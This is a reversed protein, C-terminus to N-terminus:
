SRPMPVRGFHKSLLLFDAFEVVGDGNFDGDAWVMDTRNFNSSLKLFDDFDVNVDRDADGPWTVPFELEDYDGGGRGDSDGDLPNGGADTIGESVLVIKYLGENLGEVGSLDLTAGLTAPNWVFEADSEFIEGTSSNILRYDDTGLSDSVDESFVFDVIGARNPQAGDRTSGTVTPPVADFIELTASTSMTLADNDRDADADTATVTIRYTGIGYGAVSTTGSATRQSPNIDIATQELVEFGEETVLEVRVSGNALGAGEDTVTWTFENPLTNPQSTGDAPAISIAPASTDDDVIVFDASSTVRQNDGAWDNDADEASVTVRYEGLGIDNLDFSSIANGDGSLIVAGDKIVEVFVGGVGSADSVNWTVQNNAGDLASGGDIEILPDTTDDDSIVFERVTTASLQDDAWDNDADLAFVSVRYNGVGLSNLDVSGSPEANSGDNLLVGNRTVDVRVEALGSADAVAWSVVNNENDFEGGGSITIEPAATDDDSIVFQANEISALSDGTWDSDSDEAVVTVVYSGPGFANLDFSDTPGVPGDIIQVDNRYVQATVREIGSLDTANWAVRNDSGDTSEASSTITLNPAATDDDVISFEATAEASLDDGVWDNDADTATVVIRYDGVGFSNLDLSDVAATPGSFIPEGNRLITATLASLGSSDTVTWGIRNDAGDSEGPVTFSISPPVTDDDVISFTSSATQALEDGVWDNDRDITTVTIEYDAPGLSNLNFLGSSDVGSNFIPVGNRRIVVNVDAFGSEDTVQWTVFNDSRDRDAPTSITIEPAAVDDDVIAFESSMTRQMRDGLWDNDADTASISLRFNGTGFSNLDFEGTANVDSDFILQEDQFIQAAVSTLGSEDSVEWSIINNAGDDQNPASVVIAPGETDDDVITFETVASASTLSDENWDDDGDIAEVLIQYTGPGFSNMDLGSSADVESDYITTDGNFVQVSVVSLGSADTVDWSVRNNQGDSENPLGIAIIPPSTDDDLISFQMTQTSTLEDGPSDNDADTATVTIEYEGPGEANLDWSDVPPVNGDFLTEGDKTLVVSVIEFGSADAVSWSVKNDDGDSERAATIRIEPPNPDDDAIDFLVSHVHTLQDGTWDDDADTATITIRYTGEGFSDLDFTGDLPASSNPRIIMENRWIQATASSIGSADSINWSVVNTNGDNLGPTAVVIDPRASDDDRTSVTLVYQGTEAASAASVEIYYTGTEPVSFNVIAPDVGNSAISDGPAFQVDNTELLLPDASNDARDFLRLSLNANSETGGSEPDMLFDGNDLRAADIDFTVFDGARLDVRYFDVENPNQVEAGDWQGIRAEVQVTEGVAFLGSGLLGLDEANSISENPEFAANVDGALVALLAREELPETRLTRLFSPTLSNKPRLM